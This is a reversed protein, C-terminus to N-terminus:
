KKLYGYPAYGYALLPKAYGLGYGLGYGHKVVSGYTWARGLPLGYGGYPLLPAGYFGGYGLYGASAFSIM